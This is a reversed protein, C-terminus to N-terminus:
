RKGALQNKDFPYRQQKTASRRWFAPNTRVAQKRQETFELYCPSCSSLHDQWEHVETLRLKRFAFGRLVNFPPCGVRQPKPFERSLGRTLLDLVRAEEKGLEEREDVTKRGENFKTESLSGKHAALGIKKPHNGLAPTSAGTAAAFRVRVIAICLEESEYRGRM